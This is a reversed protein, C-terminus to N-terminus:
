FEASAFVDDHRAFLIIPKGGRLFVSAGRGAGGFSQRAQTRPFQFCNRVSFNFALQPDLPQGIADFVQRGHHPGQSFQRRVITTADNRLDFGKRTIRTGGARHFHAPVACIAQADPVVPNDIGNGVFSEDDQDDFHSMPALHIPIPSTVAHVDEQPDAGDESQDKGRGPNDLEEREHTSHRM